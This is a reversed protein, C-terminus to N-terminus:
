CITELHRSNPTDSWQRPLDEPEPPYSMWSPSRYSSPPSMVYYDSYGPRNASIAYVATMPNGSYNAISQDVTVAPFPARSLPLYPAGNHQQSQADSANGGSM